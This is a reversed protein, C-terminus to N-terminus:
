TSASLKWQLHFMHFPKYCLKYLGFVQCCALLITLWLVMKRIFLPDSDVRYQLAALMSYLRVCYCHGDEACKTGKERTATERQGIARRSDDTIEAKFLRQIAILVLPTFVFVADIALMYNDVSSSEGFVNNWQLACALGGAYEALKLAFLYPSMTAMVVIWTALIFFPCLKSSILPSRLPFVVARFRDVAILVLSQTSVVLSVYQLFPVLKCLVQGLPGSILWSDVYLETLARPFLLIPYRLDSMAMYVIVINIPKRM